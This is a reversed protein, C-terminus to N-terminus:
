AKTKWAHYMEGVVARDTPKTAGVSCFYHFSEEHLEKCLGQVRKTIFRRDTSTRDRWYGGSSSAGTLFEGPVGQIGTNRLSHDAATRVRNRSFFLVAFITDSVSPIFFVCM